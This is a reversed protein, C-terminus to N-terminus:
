LLHPITLRPITMAVAELYSVCFLILLMVLYFLATSKVAQRIPMKAITAALLLCLGYPPTILGLALNMVVVVGLHIPHIGVHEALPIILPVLIIMAPVADMFTGVTLFVINILLFVFFPSKGFHEMIRVIDDPVDYYALLWGFVSATAVCFLTLSCLIANEALIKPLERVKITRYIVVGLFLSYVVAVMAAETATFVGAVIGGIIVLPTGLPLLAGAFAKLSEGLSARKEKPYNRKIALILVICMQGLGILIGPIMGGLFLGAISVGAVSGFIIMLISPPIVVGLTSSAATVAVAIGKAYGQKIMAPILVSGIAATDATSSGSIGGFFMSVVVNVHALGGTIHGVMAHALRLLRESIGSRNMIDGALMFFPVALLVFSDLGTFMQQVIVVSPLGPTLLITVFSTFGLVFAVPVGITMLGFLLFFLIAVEM